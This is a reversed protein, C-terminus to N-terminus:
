PLELTKETWLVKCPFKLASEGPSAVRRLAGRDRLSNPYTTMEYPNPTINAGEQVNEGAIKLGNM